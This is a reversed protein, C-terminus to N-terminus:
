QYMSIAVLLKDMRVHIWEENSYLSWIVYYVSKHFAVIVTVLMYMCMVNTCM